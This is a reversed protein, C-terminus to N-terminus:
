TTLLVKRDADKFGQDVSINQDKRRNVLAEKEHVHKQQLNTFRELGQNLKKEETLRKRTIAAVFGCATDSISSDYM